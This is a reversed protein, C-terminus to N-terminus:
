PTRLAAAPVGIPDSSRSATLHRVAIVLAPSSRLSLSTGLRALVSLGSSGAPRLNGCSSLAPFYADKAARDLAIAREAFVLSSAFEQPAGSVLWVGMNLIVIATPNRRASCSCSGRSCDRGDHVGALRCGRHLIAMMSATQRSLPAPRTPSGAAPRRPWVPMLMRVRSIPRIRAAIAMSSRSRRCRAVAAPAPPSRIVPKRMRRLRGLGERIM